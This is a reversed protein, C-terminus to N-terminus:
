VAAARAFTQVEILTDSVVSNTCGPCLVDEDFMYEREPGFHGTLRDILNMLPIAANDSCADCAHISRRVAELTQASVTITLGLSPQQQLM